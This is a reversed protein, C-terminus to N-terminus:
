KPQIFRLQGWICIPQMGLVEDRCGQDPAPSWLYLRKKLYFAIGLEILTNAGIYGKIEKKTQNVVLVADAWEIHPLHERMAAGKLQWLEKDQRGTEKRDLFASEAAPIRVEHHYMTRLDAAIGAMDGFFEMSGCLTIKM